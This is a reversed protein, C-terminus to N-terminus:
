TSPNRCATTRDKRLSQGAIWVWGSRSFHRPPLDPRRDYRVPLRRARVRREPVGCWWRLASQWKTRALPPLLQHARLAPVAADNGIGHCQRNRECGRRALTRRPVCRHSGNRRPTEQGVRDLPRRNGSTATQSARRPRTARCERRIPLRTPTAGVADGSNSAETPTTDGFRAETAESSTRRRLAAM